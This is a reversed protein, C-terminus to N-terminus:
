QENQTTKIKRRDRYKHVSYFNDISKYIVNKSFCHDCVYQIAKVKDPKKNFMKEIILVDQIGNCLRCNLKHETLRPLPKGSIGKRNKPYYRSM